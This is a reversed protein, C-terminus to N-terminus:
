PRGARLHHYDAVPRRELCRATASPEAEHWLALECRLSSIALARAEVAGISPDDQAAAVLLVVDSQSLCLRSWATDEADPQYIVRDHAREMAHLWGVLETRGHDGPGRQAADPGLQQAVADADVRIVSGTRALQDALQEAVMRAPRANQGAPAVAITRGGPLPPQSRDAILMRDMDLLRDVLLRMVGSVLAPSRELLAMFSSVRLLLLDSDRVAHVTAARPRDTVLAMEGVIAGRGLDHLALEPGDGSIDSAVSVRLRGSVVVFLGEGADGQRFIVEGAAVNVPELERALELRTAEELAAFLPIGALFATLEPLDQSDAM